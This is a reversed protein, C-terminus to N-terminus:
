CDPGQMLHIVDLSAWVTAQQSYNQAAKSHPLFVIVLPLPIFALCGLVICKCQQEATYEVTKRSNRTSSAPFFSCVLVLGRYDLHM